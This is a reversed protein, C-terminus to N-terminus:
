KFNTHPLYPYKKERYNIYERLEDALVYNFNEKSEQRRLELYEELVITVNELCKLSRLLSSVETSLRQSEEKYHTYGAKYYDKTDEFKKSFLQSM